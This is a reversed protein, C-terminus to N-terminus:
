ERTIFEDLNFLIRSIGVWPDITAADKARIGSQTDFYARIRAMETPTPSRGVVTRYAFDLRTSFDDGAEHVVRWALAQRSERPRRRTPAAM